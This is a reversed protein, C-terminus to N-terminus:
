CDMLTMKLQNFKKTLHSIGDGSRKNLSFQGTLNLMTKGESTM